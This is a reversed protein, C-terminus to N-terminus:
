DDTDDGNALESLREILKAYNVATRRFEEDGDILFRKKNMIALQKKTILLLNSLEFNDKNGDAFVIVHNDSIPGHAQEYLYRHKPMWKGRAVKVIVVGKSVSESGIPLSNHFEKQPKFDIGAKKGKKWGYLSTKSRANNNGRWNKMQKKTVSVGFEEKVLECLEQDKKGNSNNRIFNAQDETFLGM